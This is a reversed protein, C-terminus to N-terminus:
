SDGPLKVLRVDAKFYEVSQRRRILAEAPSLELANSGNFPKWLIELLIIMM